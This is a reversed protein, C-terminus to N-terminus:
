PDNREKGRGRRNYRSANGSPERLLGTLHCTTCMVQLLPGPLKSLAGHLLRGQNSEYGAAPVGEGCNEPITGVKAVSDEAASSDRQFCTLTEDSNRNLLKFREKCEIGSNFRLLLPVQCKGLVKDLDITNCSSPRYHALVLQLLATTPSAPQEKHTCHTSGHCLRGYSHEDAM